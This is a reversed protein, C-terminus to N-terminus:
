ARRASAVLVGAAPLKDLIKKLAPHRRTLRERKVIARFADSLHERWWRDDPGAAAWATALPELCSVDGVSTVAALFGVPLPAEATELTEKLDYLALRSGGVALVQHVQGRVAAWRPQDAPRAAKERSRIQDVLRRLVTVSTRDGDERLVAAVVEPHDPLTGSVLEHPGRYGNRARMTM